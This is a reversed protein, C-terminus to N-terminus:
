QLVPPPTSDHEEIWCIIQEERILVVEEGNLYFAAPLGIWRMLMGVKAVKCDPGVAVVRAHRMKSERMEQPEQTGQMERKRRRQKDMESEDALLISTGRMTQPDDVPVISVNSGVPHCIKMPPPPETDAVQLVREADGM